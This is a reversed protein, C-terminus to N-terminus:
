KTGTLKKKHDQPTKPTKKKTQAEVSKNMEEMMETLGSLDFFGDDEMCTKIDDFLKKFSIKNEKMYQKMLNYADEQSVDHNELLGSYFVTKVIHPMDAVMEGTGELMARAIDEKKVNEEEQVASTKRVLPECSLVAFMKQVTQKHEAAMFSYELTYDKEGIKLNLM